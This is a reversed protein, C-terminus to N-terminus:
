HVGLNIVEHQSVCKKKLSMCENNQTYIFNLFFNYNKKNKLYKNNKQMIILIEDYFFNIEEKM